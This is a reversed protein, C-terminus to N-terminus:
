TRETNCIQVHAFAPSITCSKRTREEDSTGFEEYVAGQKSISADDNSSLGVGGVM